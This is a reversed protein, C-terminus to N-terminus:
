EYESKDFWVLHTPGKYGKEWVFWSFSMASSCDESATPKWCNVRRSSGVSMIKNTAMPYYVKDGEKFNFDTM